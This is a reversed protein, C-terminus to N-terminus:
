EHKIEKVEYGADEIVKTLTEDDISTNEIIATKEELSVVAEEGLSKLADEVHKKCRECMMGEIYIVKKMTKFEEKKLKNIRLANLIVFMSSIWMSISSIMPNLKINLPYYLVGAAIPIFISNYGLAWFINQKIIRTTKKSLDILFPIDNLDNKMLIVDSTASAIDSAENISVSIDANTLAIADNIGDGVMMVLGNEKEKLVLSNKDEPKVNSQYEKIGLLESIRIASIDNDGTCMIPKINKSILNKIAIKSNARIVDSMYILGLIEDNKSVAIYSYNNNRAYNIDEENINNILENNGAKYVDNNKKAIIGQGPIFESTDFIINGNNFREIITKSIPHNSTKELSSLVNIFENTYQKVEIINLKNKTLTGTKDFIITNIKHIRELVESRKILIGNSAAKSVAVAICTPTALGLACPCSIVLVSVAFNITLSLDRSIIFWIIFTIISIGIVTFVFYKSILDAFREIPIKEMAAKKALNIINSIVTTSSPKTIRITLTGNENVTGGIVEDDINKLVSLSEGTILSENVYSSGSIVIGDQPISEGAKVVVIDNKKIENIPVVKIENNVLLNAQMPILTSLGRITKITKNKTNGEIFKGIKVIVSVMSAAEFYLHDNTKNILTFLSYVYSVFSSLSVLSNMNPNLKFLSKFGSYYIDINLLIIVSSIILEFDNSLHNMSIIMLIITLVISIILKIKTIDIKSKNTVLTYGADKIIKALEDENFDKEDYEIYIENEILNVSYSKIFPVSNLANEVNKKCIVCTMGKVEYTKDM